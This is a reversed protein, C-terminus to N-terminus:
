LNTGAGLLPIQFQPDRVELVAVLWAQTFPALTVKTHGKDEPGQHCREPSPHTHPTHTHTM